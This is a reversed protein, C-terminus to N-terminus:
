RRGRNGLAWALTSSGHAKSAYVKAEFSFDELFLVTLLNRLQCVIDECTKRDAGLPPELTLLPVTNDNYGTTHSTWYTCHTVQRLKFVTNGFTISDGGQPKFAWVEAPQGLLATIADKTSRTFTSSLSIWMKPWLPGSSRATKPLEPRAPPPCVPTRLKTRLQRIPLSECESGKQVM